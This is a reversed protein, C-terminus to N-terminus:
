RPPETADGALLLAIAREIEADTIEGKAALSACLNAAAPPEVSRARFLDLSSGGGATLDRLVAPCFMGAREAVPFGVINHIASLFKPGLFQPAYPGPNAELLRMAADIYFGLFPNARRFCLFANHVKVRARPSGRPRAEIWVERGVAFATQPLTLREPEFVLFDADCWVVTGYGEALAGDIALLRALDSAVVRQGRLRERLAGPVADFLEDGLYRYDFGLSRAWAAVSDLCRGIWAAPLPHRHSQLVLCDGM